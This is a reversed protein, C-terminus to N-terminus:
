HIVVSNGDLSRFRVVCGTSARPFSPIEEMLEKESKGNVFCLATDYYCINMTQLAKANKLILKVWKLERPNGAFEEFFVSKLHPFLCGTTVTGLAWSDDEDNSEGEKKDDCEAADSVDGEDENGLNNEGEVSDVDDDEDGDEQAGESDDEDDEDSDEEREDNIYENFVLSELNPVAKLLAILGQDTTLVDSVNLMKVNHFTLLSYPQIM